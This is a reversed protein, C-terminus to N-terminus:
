MFLGTKNLFNLKKIFTASINLTLFDLADSTMEKNNSEFRISCDLGVLYLNLFYFFLVIFCITKKNYM